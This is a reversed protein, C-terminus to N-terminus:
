MLEMDCALIKFLNGGKSKRTNFWKAWTVGQSFLRWRPTNYLNQLHLDLPCSILHLGIDGRIHLLPLFGHPSFCWLWALLCLLLCHLLEWKNEWKLCVHIAKDYWSICIWCMNLSTLQSWCTLSSLCRSLLHTTSREWPLTCSSCKLAPTVQCPSFTNQM